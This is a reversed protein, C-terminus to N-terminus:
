YYHGFYPPEILKNNEKASNCINYFLCATNQSFLKGYPNPMKTLGPNNCNTNDRPCCARFYNWLFYHITANSVKLLKSLRNNVEQIHQRLQNDEHISLPIKKKIKSEIKKSAYLVGLRLHGRLEHYDVPSLLLRSDKYKWGCESKALSLFFYSKKKVPDSYAIFRSLYKLFGSTGSITNNCSYFADTINYFGSKILKSGIDNILYTRENIRNLTRGFYEDQFIQSLNGPTLCEWFNVNAYNNNNEVAYLFRERLYDWGKRLEGNIIGKLQQEGLPSTQHCIAVIFFYSNALLIKNNYISLNVSINECPKPLKIQQLISKFAHLLKLNITIYNM